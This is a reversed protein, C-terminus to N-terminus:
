IILNYMTSLGSVNTGKLNDHALRNIWSIVSPMMQLEMDLLEQDKLRCGRLLSNTSDETM